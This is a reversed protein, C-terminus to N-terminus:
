VSPAERLFYERATKFAEKTLQNALLNRRNRLMTSRQKSARPDKDKVLQYIMKAEPYPLGAIFPALKKALEPGAQSLVPGVVGKCVIEAVARDVLSSVTEVFDPLFPEMERRAPWLRERKLTYFVESFIHYVALTIPDRNVAKPFIVTARTFAMRMEAALQDEYNDSTM